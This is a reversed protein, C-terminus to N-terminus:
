LFTKSPETFNPRVYDEDAPLFPYCAEREALRVSIPDSNYVDALPYQRLTAMTKSLGEIEDFVEKQTMEEFYGKTKVAIIERGDQLRMGYLDTRATGVRTVKGRMSKGNATRVIATPSGITDNM